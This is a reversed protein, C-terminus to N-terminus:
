PKVLALLPVFLTEVARRLDALSGHNPLRGDAHTMTAAVNPGLAGSAGNMEQELLRIANERSQLAAPSEDERRRAILRRAIEEPDAEVAVLRFREGFERRLTVAESVHRLAEVIFIHPKPDPWAAIKAAIRCALVGPGEAQRMEIGLQTLKERTFQEDALGRRRAEDKIRDSFSLCAVALGHREALAILAKAAEGKGSSPLGTLGVVLRPRSDASM